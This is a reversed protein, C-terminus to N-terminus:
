RRRAPTGYKSWITVLEAGAKLAARPSLKSGAVDRWQSLPYELASRTLPAISGAAALRTLRALIEVDFTWSVSFPEAFLSRLAPTNRFLKAGCQTDYVSLGLLLSAVSAFIRGLYHRRPTRVVNRGLMSVRSGLVAVLEPHSAFLARMPSLEALPTALDADLYGVIRPGAEFAALLGRRVAEAKGVNQDLGLVRFQGPRVAAVRHLMARTDDRSGDDVLVFGLGPEAEAALVFSQADFRAAENYCPVVIITDQV